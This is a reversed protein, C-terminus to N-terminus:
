TISSPHEVEIKRVRSRHLPRDHRLRIRPPPAGEAAAHGLSAAVVIFLFIEIHIKFNISHRILRSLPCASFLTGGHRVLVLDPTVGRPPAVQAVRALQHLVRRHVAHPELAPERVSQRAVIWVGSYFRM